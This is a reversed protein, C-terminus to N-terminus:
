RRNISCKNQGIVALGKPSVDWPGSGSNKMMRQPAVYKTPSSFSVVTVFFEPSSVHLPQDMESFYIHTANTWTAKTSTKLHHQTTRLLTYPLFVNKKCELLQVHVEDGKNAIKLAQVLSSEDHENCVGVAVHAM